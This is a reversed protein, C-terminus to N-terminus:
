AGVDMSSGWGWGVVAIAFGGGGGSAVSITAGSVDGSSRGTYRSGDRLDNSHIGAAAPASTATAPITTNHGADESRADGNAAGEAGVGIGTACCAATTSCGDPM